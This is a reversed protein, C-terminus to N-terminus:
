NAVVFYLFGSNKGSANITIPFMSGEITLEAPITVTYQDKIRTLKYLDKDESSLHLKKKCKFSIVINEGVKYKPYEAKYLHRDNSVTFEANGFDFDKAGVDNYIQAHDSLTFTPIKSVNTTESRVYFQLTDGTPIGSRNKTGFKIWYDCDKVVYKSPITLTYEGDKYSLLKSVNPKFKKGDFNNSLIHLFKKDGLFRQHKYRTGSSYRNISGFKFEKDCKFKVVIKKGASFNPFLLLNNEDKYYTANVFEFDTAFVKESGDENNIVINAYDEPKDAEDSTEATTEATTTTEEATTAATTAETTVATTTAETAASTAPTKGSSCSTFLLTASLITVFATKKM